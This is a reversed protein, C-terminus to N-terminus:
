SPFYVDDEYVLTFENYPLWGESLDNVSTSAMWIKVPKMGLDTYFNNRYIIGTIMNVGSGLEEAYYISQSLSNKYYFNFPTNYGLDEGFGIPIIGTFSSGIMVSNSTDISGFGSTNLAEVTYYYFDAADITIDTFETATIGSAIDVAGPYRVISYSIEGPIFYGGHANPVPAEWSLYGHDDINSLLLDQPVGPFDIGIFQVFSAGNGIGSTNEGIIEYTYLDSQPITNDVFSEPNGILPNPISQILEGNRYIKILTLETLPDGNISTNPNTWSLTAQLAGETGPVVTFGIPAEPALPNKIAGPNQVFFFDEEQPVNGKQLQGEIGSKETSLLGNGTLDQKIQNQAWVSSVFVILIIILGTKKM